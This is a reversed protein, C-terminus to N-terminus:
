LKGPDLGKERLRQAVQQTIDKGRAKALAIAQRAQAYLAETNTAGQTQGGNFLAKRKNGYRNVAEKSLKVRGARRWDRDLKDRTQQSGTAYQFAEDPTIDFQNMADQMMAQYQYTKEGVGSPPVVLDAGAADQAPAFDYGGKLNLTRDMYVTSGDGRLVKVKDGKFLPKRNIADLKLLPDADPNNNFEQITKARFKLDQTRAGYLGQKAGETTTQAGRLTELAGYAGQKAQETNQQEGKLDITAQGIPTAKMTGTYRNYGTGGSIRYPSVDHGTYVAAQQEPTLQPLMEAFWRAKQNAQMVEGFAGPDVNAKLLAAAARSENLRLAERNQPDAMFDKDGAMDFLQAAYDIAQQRKRARIGAGFESQEILDSWYSM